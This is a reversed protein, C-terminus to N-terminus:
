PRVSMATALSGHGNAPMGTFLVVVSRLPETSRKNWSFTQLMFRFCVVLMVRVDADVGADSFYM